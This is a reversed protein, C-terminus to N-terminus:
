RKRERAEHDLEKLMMSYVAIDDLSDDHGGRDFNQCYRSLKSIIQNLVGLRNMDSEDTISIKQSGLLAVFAKGFRKYNDGYLENRSSYLDAKKCFEEVVFTNKGVDM